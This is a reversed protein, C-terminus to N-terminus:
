KVLKYHEANKEWYNKWKDLDEGFDQGTLYKLTAVLEEIVSKKSAGGARTVMLQGEFQVGQLADIVAPISYYKQLPHERAKQAGEIVLQSQPSQLKQIEIEISEPVYKSATQAYVFSASVFLIIILSFVIKKM